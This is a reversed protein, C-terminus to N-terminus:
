FRRPKRRRKCVPGRWGWRRRRGRRRRWRREWQRRRRLLGLVFAEPVDTPPVWAGDAQLIAVERLRRSAAIQLLIMLMLLRSEAASALAKFWRETLKWAAGVVASVSFAVLGLTGLSALLASM